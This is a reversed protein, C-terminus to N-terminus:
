GAGAAAARWVPVLDGAFVEDWSPRFSLVEDRGAAGLAALREEDGVLAAIAEAWAAPSADALVIGDVGPRRVFV